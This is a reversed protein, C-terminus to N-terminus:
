ACMHGIYTENGGISVDFASAFLEPILISLGLVQGVDMIIKVGIRCGASALVCFKGGCTDWFGRTLGLLKGERVSEGV